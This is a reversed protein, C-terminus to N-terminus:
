ATGVKTVSPMGPQQAPPRFVWCAHCREGEAGGDDSSTASLALGGALRSSAGRDPGAATATNHAGRQITVKLAALGALCLLYAADSFAAVDAVGRMAVM